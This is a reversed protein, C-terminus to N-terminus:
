THKNNTTDSFDGWTPNQVFALPLPALIRVSLCVEYRLIALSTRKPVACYLLNQKMYM